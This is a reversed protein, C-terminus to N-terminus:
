FLRQMPPNFTPTPPVAPEAQQRHVQNAWAWATNEDPADVEYTVGEVDVEYAAM